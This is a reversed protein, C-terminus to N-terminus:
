ACDDNSCKGCVKMESAALMKECYICQQKNYRNQAIREVRSFRRIQFVAAYTVIWLIIAFPIAPWGFVRIPVYTGAIALGLVAAMVADGATMSCNGITPGLWRPTETPVCCM